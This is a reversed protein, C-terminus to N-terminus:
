SSTVRSLSPGCWIPAQLISLGAGREECASSLGRMTQPQEEASVRPRLPSLQDRGPAHTWAGLEACRVGRKHLDVLNTMVWNLVWAHNQLTARSILGGEPRRLTAKVERSAEKHLLQDALAAATAPGHSILLALARWVAPSFLRQLLEPDLVAVIGHEGRVRRWRLRVTARTYGYDRVVTRHRATSRAELEAGAVHAYLLLTRELMTMDVCSTARREGVLRSFVIAVLHGLSGVELLRRAIPEGM